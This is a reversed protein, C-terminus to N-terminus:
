STKNVLSVTWRLMFIFSSLLLSCSRSRCLFLPLPLSPFREYFTYHHTKWHFCKANLMNLINLMIIFMNLLYNIWLFIKSFHGYFNNKVNVDYIKIDKSGITLRFNYIEWRLIWFRNFNWIFYRLVVMVCKKRERFIDKRYFYLNLIKKQM